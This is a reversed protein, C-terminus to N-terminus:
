DGTHLIQVIYSWWPTRWVEAATSVFCLFQLVASRPMEQSVDIINAADRRCLQIVVSSFPCCLNYSIGKCCSKKSFLQYTSPMKASLSVDVRFLLMCVTCKTHLVNLWHVKMECVWALWFIGPLPIKQRNRMFPKFNWCSNVWVTFTHKITLLYFCTFEEWEKGLM